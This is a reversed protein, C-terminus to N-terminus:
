LEECNSPILPLGVFEQSEQTGHSNPLSGATGETGEFITNTSIQQSLEQEVKYSYPLDSPNSSEHGEPL